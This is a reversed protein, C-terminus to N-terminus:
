FGGGPNDSNFNDHTGGTQPFVLAMFASAVVGGLSPTCVWHRDPGLREWGIAHFEKTRGTVIGRGM